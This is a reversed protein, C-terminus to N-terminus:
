TGPVFGNTYKALENPLRQSRAAWALSAKSQCNADAIHSGPASLRGNDDPSPQPRGDRVRVVHDPRPQQGPEVRDALRHDHHGRGAAGPLRNQQRLPHRRPDIAPATRPHAQAAM